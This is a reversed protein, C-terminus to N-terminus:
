STPPVFGSEAAKRKSSEIDDKVSDEASHDEELEQENHVGEITKPNFSFAGKPVFTALLIVVSCVTFQISHLGTLM